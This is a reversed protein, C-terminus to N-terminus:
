RDGFEIPLEQILFRYKGLKTRPIENILEISIKLSNDSAMKMKTIIEEKDDDQLKENEIIRVVVEGKKNQMLQMNRIKSFSNFHQAFILATLTIIENNKGIVYDQLRGEVKEILKWNRGCECKKNTNIAIDQTRYRIFPMVYNTFSTAVIEGKKTCWEDKDNILELYGYQPFCHYYNSKECEGALCVRESHGYWSFARTKLVTEFQVRQWEYINESGCFIAKVSEFPETKNKEMYATLIQLASPYAQIFKPKFDRIKEIYLPITDDKLHYSSMILWNNEWDMEWYKKNEKINNVVNGRLVVCKDRHKYGVRKWQHTMFAWEVDSYTRKDYYFGMPIGTSGGTTGYGLYKQPFNKDIMEKRHQNIIDKTLYPIKKLDEFDKIDEPKISYSDFLNTYYPVNKYAHYIIKKLQKLQYESIKEESWFESKNLLDWTEVFAKGYRYRAPQYYKYKRYLFKLPSFLPSKKVLKKMM